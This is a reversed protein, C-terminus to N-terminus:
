VMVAETASPVCCSWTCCWQTNSARAKRESHVLADAPSTPRGMRPTRRRTCPAGEQCRKGPRDGARHGHGVGVHGDGVVVVGELVLAARGQQRQGASAAGPHLRGAQGRGRGPRAVDRERGPQHGGRARARQHLQAHIGANGVQRKALGGHRMAHGQACPPYVGPLAVFVGAVVALANQVGQTRLMVRGIASKGGQQLFGKVLGQGVYGIAAHVQQVDVAQVGVFGHAVVKFGPLALQARASHHQEVVDLHPLTVKAYPAVPGFDRAVIRRQRKRVAVAQPHQQRPRLRGGDQLRQRAIGPAPGGHAIGKGRQALAKLQAGLAHVQVGHHSVQLLFLM